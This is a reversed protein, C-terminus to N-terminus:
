TTGIGVAAKSIINELRAVTMPSSTTNGNTIDVSWSDMAIKSLKQEADRAFGDKQKDYLAIQAGVVGAVTASTGVTQADETSKKQGLLLTEAATKSTQGILLAGHNIEVTAKQTLLSQEASMKDITGKIVGGSGAASNTQALETVTKQIILAKEEASTLTQAAVALAQAADLERKTKILGDIATGAMEGLGTPKTDSSQGLETVIKQEILDIEKTERLLNGELLGKLTADANYGYGATIANTFSDGTQSLESIIKQGILSTEAVSATIQATKLTKESGVLGTFAVSNETDATQALETSIKQSILLTEAATQAIQGETVGLIDIAGTTGNLGYGLATALGMNDATQSLETVIKQGLLEEETEANAIQAAILLAQNEDLTKKRDSHGTINATTDIGLTVPKVDSTQSLETVIKQETLITEQDQQLIKTEVVGQVDTSDNFALDDPITDSTNALETAIQQRILGIEATTKKESQNNLLYSVSSQLVAGLAGLYVDAYHDIDIRGAEYEQLVHAKTSQMLVDFVGTGDIEATTLRDLDPAATFDTINISDLAPITM